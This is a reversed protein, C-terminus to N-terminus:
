IFECWWHQCTQLIKGMSVNLSIEQNQLRHIQSEMDARLKELRQNVKDQSEKLQLTRVKADNNNLVSSMESLSDLRGQQIDLGSFKFNDILDILERIEKETTCRRAGARTTRVFQNSDKLWTEVQFVHVCFLYKWRM